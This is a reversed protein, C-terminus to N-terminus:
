KEGRLAADIAIAAQKGDEVAQVTLDEGSNIADGGAYVGKTSTQYNEDVIIKGRKIKVAELASDDLKQGIAKLLMDAKLQYSIGTNQLKDKRIKTRNFEIATVKDNGKITNPASWLQINVGNT